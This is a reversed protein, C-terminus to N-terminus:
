GLWKCCDKNLDRFDEWTLWGLRKSIGQWDCDTRHQLDLALSSPSKRYENFKFGYFRSSPNDKFLKPTLLLFLTKTPNRKDLPPPLESNPVLMVDINRALQNRMLDYTVGYSIDSLVKAEILVAFGNVPNLLLADVNTAGELNKKQQASHVIYPIFQRDVLNRSLWNKYSRPSPLSPEFFLALDGSFCEMWNEIGEVPPSDGYARRFLAIMQETRRSSHFVTMMCSAIWFREDKEIQCPLRLDLFSRGRRDPNASCFEGYRAISRLYYDLYKARESPPGEKAGVFHTLLQDETFPLYVPHMVHDDSNM